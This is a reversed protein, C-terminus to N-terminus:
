GGPGGTGGEVIAWAVCREADGLMALQKPTRAVAGVLLEVTLWPVPPETFGAAATPVPALRLHELAKAWAATHAREAWCVVAFVDVAQAGWGLTATPMTAPLTFWRWGDEAPGLDITLGRITGHGAKVIPRLMAVVDDAVESRPSRRGHGTTLTLHWLADDRM